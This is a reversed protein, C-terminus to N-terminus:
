RFDTSMCCGFTLGVSPLGSEFNSTSVRFENELRCAVNCIKKVGGGGERGKPRLLLRLAAHSTCAICSM